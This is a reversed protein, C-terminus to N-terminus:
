RPRWDLAFVSSAWHSWLKRLGTGDVGEVWISSFGEDYPDSGDANWPSPSSTSFALRGGDPSWAMPGDPRGSSQLREVNGGELDVVFLGHTDGSGATGFFALKRGDRSWAPSEVSEGLEPGATESGTRPDILVVGGGEDLAVIRGDRRWRPEYLDARTTLPRLGRGDRRVIWLAGATPREFHPRRARVFVLQGSDPSFSGPWVIFGRWGALRRARASAVDIVQLTDPSSYREFALFRGNPSWVPMDDDVSATPKTLQRGRGGAAPFTWIAFSESGITRSGAAVAIRTGTPSWVAQAARQEVGCPGAPCAFPRIRGTLPLTWLDRNDNANLGCLMCGVLLPGPVPAARAPPVLLALLALLAVVRLAMRM